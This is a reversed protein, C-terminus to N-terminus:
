GLVSVNSLISVLNFNARVVVFFALVTGCVPPVLLLGPVLVAADEVFTALRLECSALLILDRCFLALKLAEFGFRFDIRARPICHLSSKYLIQDLLLRSVCKKLWSM